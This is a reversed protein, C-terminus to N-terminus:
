SSFDKKSELFAHLIRASVAKRGQRDDIPILDKNNHSESM